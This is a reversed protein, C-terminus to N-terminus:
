TPSGRSPSTNQRCTSVRPERGLDYTLGHIQGTRADTVMSTPSGAYVGIRLHGTPALLEKEGAANACLTGLAGAMLCAILVAPAFRSMGARPAIISRLMKIPGM